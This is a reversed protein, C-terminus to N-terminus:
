RSQNLQNRRWIDLLRVQDYESLSQYHTQLIYGLKGQTIVEYEANPSFNHCFNELNALPLLNNDVRNTVMLYLDDINHNPISRHNCYKHSFNGNNHNRNANTKFAEDIYQYSEQTNLPINNVMNDTVSDNPHIHSNNITGPITELFQPPNGSFFKPHPPNPMRQPTPRLGNNTATQGPNATNTLEKNVTKLTGRSVGLVQYIFKNCIERCYISYDILFRIATRKDVNSKKAHLRLNDWYIIENTLLQNCNGPCCRIAELENIPTKPLRRKTLSKAQTIIANRNEPDHILMRHILNNSYKLINKCSVECMGNEKFLQRNEVVFQVYRKSKKKRSVRTRVGSPDANSHNSDENGPPEKSLATAKSRKRRLDDLVEHRNRFENSESAIQKEIYKDICCCRRNRTGKCPCIDQFEDESNM